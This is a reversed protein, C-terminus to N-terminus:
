EFKEIIKQKVTEDLQMEIKRHAIKGLLDEMVKSQKEYLKCADCIHLHAKLQVEKFLSIKAAQKKEILFTAEKCALLLTHLLDKKM